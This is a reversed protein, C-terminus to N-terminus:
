AAVKQLDARQPGDAKRQGFQQRGLGAARDIRRVVAFRHDHDEVQPRGTLEIQEVHLGLRRGLDATREFRDGGAGPM